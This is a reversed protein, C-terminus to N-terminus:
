KKTKTGAQRGVVVTPSPQPAISPATQPKKDVAQVKTVLAKKDVAKKDAVRVKAAPTKKNTARVKLDAPGSSSCPSFTITDAATQSVNIYRSDAPITCDANAGVIVQLSNQVSVSLGCCSTNSAPLFVLSYNLGCDVLSELVEGSIPTLTCGPLLYLESLPVSSPAVAAGFLTILLTTINSYDEATCSSGPPAPVIQVTQTNLCTGCQIGTSGSCSVTLCDSLCINATPVFPEIPAFCPPVTITPPGAPPTVTFQVQLCTAGTLLEAPICVTQSGSQDPSYPQNTYQPAIQQYTTCDACDSPDCGIGALITYTATAGDCTGALTLTACVQCSEPATFSTSYSITPLPIIPQCVTISLANLLIDAAPSLSTVAASIALFDAASWDAYDISFTALADANPDPNVFTAFVPGYDAIQSGDGPSGRTHLFIDAYEGSQMSGISILLPTGPQAAALLSSLDVRVFHQEDIEFDNEDAFGIGTEDASECKEYLDGATGPPVKAFGALNVNVTSSPDQFTATPGLNTNCQPTGFFNVTLQSANCLGALSCIPLQILLIQTCNGLAQNILIIGGIGNNPFLARCVAQDVSAGGVVASNYRTQAALADALIAEVNLATYNLGDNVFGPPSSLPNGFLLTWIATQIDAFTYGPSPSTEYAAANNLIQLIGILYSTNISIGPNCTAFFAQLATAAGPDSLSIASVGTYQQGPNFTNYIDLCWGVYGGPPPNPNAVALASGPPGTIAINVYSTVGDIPEPGPAGNAIFSQQPPDAAPFATNIANILTTCPQQDCPPTVESTKCVCVSPFCENELVLKCSPDECTPSYPPSSSQNVVNCLGPLQSIDAPCSGDPNPVALTATNAVSVPCAPGVTYAYQISIVIDTAGFDFTGNCVTLPFVQSPSKGTLMSNLYASGTVGTISTNNNDVVVGSTTVQDYLCYCPPATPDAEEPCTVDIDCTVPCQQAIPTGNNDLLSLQLSFTSNLCDSQLEVCSSTSGTATGFSGDSGAGPVSLTPGPVVPYNIAPGVSPTQVLTVVPTLNTAAGPNHVTYSILWCINPEAQVRSVDITYNITIQQGVMVCDPPTNTMNKTVTWEPPCINASCCQSTIFPLGGPEAKLPGVSAAKQEKPTAKATGRNTSTQHIPKSMKNDIARSGAGRNTDSSIILLSDVM